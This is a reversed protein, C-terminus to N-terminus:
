ESLVLIFTGSVFTEAGLVRFRVTKHIDNNTMICCSVKSSTDWMMFEIMTPVALGASSITVVANIPGQGTADLTMSSTDVPNTKASAVLRKIRYSTAGQEWVDDSDRQLEIVITDTGTLVVAEISMEGKNYKVQDLDFETIQGSTPENIIVFPNVGVNGGHGPSIAHGILPM